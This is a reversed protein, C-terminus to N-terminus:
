RATKLVGKDKVRSPITKMFEHSLCLRASFENFPPNALPESGQLFRPLPRHHLNEAKKCIGGHMSNKARHVFEVTGSCIEGFIKDDVGGHQKKFEMM